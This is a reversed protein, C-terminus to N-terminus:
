IFARSWDYEAVKLKEIADRFMQLYITNASANITAAASISSSVSSSESASLGGIGVSSSAGTGTGTSSSNSLATKKAERLLCSILPVLAANYKDTVTITKSGEAGTMHGQATDAQQNIYDVANDVWREVAAAPLDTTTYNNDALLTTATHTAM